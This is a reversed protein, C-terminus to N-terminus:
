TLSYHLLTSPPASLLFVLLFAMVWGRDWGGRFEYNTCKQLHSSLACYPCPLKIPWIVLWVANQMAMGLIQDAM